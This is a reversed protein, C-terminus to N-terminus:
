GLFMWAIRIVALIILIIGIWKGVSTVVILIIGIAILLFPSADALFQTLGDLGGKDLIEDGKDRVDDIINGTANGGTTNNQALVLGSLAVLALM